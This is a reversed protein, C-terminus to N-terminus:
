KVDSWDFQHYASWCWVLKTLYVLPLTHWYRRISTWNFFSRLTAWAAIIPAGWLFVARRRALSPTDLEQAYKLRVKMTNPADVLWHRVVSLFDTRLPDHLVTAEPEFYLQYGLRRFRVTWELDEGRSQGPTMLGAHDIVSRHISLNATTLYPRNGRDTYPLMDHFASLNDALQYYNTDNFVLSGGVILKGQQQQRIHNVFWGPQPICDDDLFMIIQGQAIQMGLNRRDSAHNAEPGTPIFRTHEDPKVLGYSDSGIVLIEINQGCAQAKVANIIRDIHPSDSDPIIISYDKM